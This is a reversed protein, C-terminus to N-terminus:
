RLRSRARPRLCCRRPSSRASARSPPMPPPPEDLHWRRDARPQPSDRRSLNGILRIIRSARQVLGACPGRLLPESGRGEAWGVGRATRGRRGRLDGAEIRQFGKEDRGADDREAFDAVLRLQQREHEGRAEALRKGIMAPMRTAVSAFWASAPKRPLRKRDNTGGPTSVQSTASDNKATAIQASFGSVSSSSSGGGAVRHPTNPTVTTANKRASIPSLVCTAVTTSAACTGTARRRRARCSARFAARWREPRAPRCPPM